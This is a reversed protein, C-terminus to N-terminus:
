YRKLLDVAYQKLYRKISYDKGCVSCYWLPRADWTLTKKLLHCTPCWGGSSLKRTKRVSVLGGIATKSRPADDRLNTTVESHVVMSNNINM